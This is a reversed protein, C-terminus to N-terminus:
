RRPVTGARRAPHPRHARGPAPRGRGHAPAPAPSCGVGSLRRIAWSTVTALGQTPDRDSGPCARAYPTGSSETRGAARHVAAVRLVAARARAALPEAVPFLPGAVRVAGPAGRLCLVHLPGTGDLERVYVRARSQGVAIRAIGELEPWTCPLLVDELVAYPAPRWSAARLGQGGERRVQVGIVPWSGGALAPYGIEVGAVVGGDSGCYGGDAGPERWRVASVRPRRNHPKPRPPTM